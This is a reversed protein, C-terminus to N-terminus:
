KLGGDLRGPIQPAVGPGRGDKCLAVVPCDSKYLSVNEGPVQGSGGDTGPLGPELTAAPLHAPM